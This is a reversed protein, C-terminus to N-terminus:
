LPIKFITNYYEWECVWQKNNSQYQVSDCKNIDNIYFMFLMWELISGQPVGIELLM